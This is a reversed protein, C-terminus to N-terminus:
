SFASIRFDHFDHFHQFEFITLISILHFIMFVDPKGRALHEMSDIFLVGTQLPEFLSQRDIISPAPIRYGLSIAMLEVTM